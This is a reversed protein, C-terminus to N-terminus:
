FIGVIAVIMPSPEVKSPARLIFCQDGFDINAKVLQRKKGQNKSAIYVNDTLQPLKTHVDSLIM